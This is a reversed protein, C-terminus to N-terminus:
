GQSPSAVWGPLKGAEQETFAGAGWSGSYSYTAFFILPRIPMQIKFVSYAPKSLEVLSFKDFLRPLYINVISNLGFTTNTYFQKLSNPLVSHVALLKGNAHIQGHHQLQLQLEQLLM